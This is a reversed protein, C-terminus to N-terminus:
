VGFLKPLCEHAPMALWQAPPKGNEPSGALLTATVTVITRPGLGTVFFTNAAEQVYARYAPDTVNAGEVQATVAWCNADLNSATATEALKARGVSGFLRRLFRAVASEMERFSRRRLPSPPTTVTFTWESWVQHTSNPDM